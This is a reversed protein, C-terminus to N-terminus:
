PKESLFTKYREGLQSLCNQLAVFDVKWTSTAFESKILDPSSLLSDVIAKSINKRDDLNLGIDISLYERDKDIELNNLGSFGFAHAEGDVRLIFALKPFPFGNLAIGRAAAKLAKFHPLVFEAADTGGFEASFDVSSSIM